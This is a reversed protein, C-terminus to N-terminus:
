MRITALATVPTSPSYTSLATIKPTTTTFASIPKKWSLLASFAISARACITVVSLV